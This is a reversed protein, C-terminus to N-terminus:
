QTSNVRQHLRIEKMFEANEIVNDFYKDEIIIKPIPSYITSFSLTLCLISNETSQCYTIFIDTIADNCIKQTRTM